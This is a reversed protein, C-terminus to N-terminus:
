RWAPGRIWAVLSYRRGATVPSVRHLLWSPFMVPCGAKQPAAQIAGNENFEFVGGAYEGPDSLPVSISIKRTLDEPVTDSHWRFFGQDEADYRALQMTDHLPVIDFGFLENAKLAEAWMIEYAWGHEVVNLWRVKTRRHAAPGGPVQDAGYGELGAPANEADVLARLVAIQERTFIPVSSTLFYNSRGAARRKGELVVPHWEGVVMQEM